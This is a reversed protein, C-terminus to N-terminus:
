AKLYNIVLTAIASNYFLKCSPNKLHEILQNNPLYGFISTWIVRPLYFIDANDYKFVHNKLNVKRLYDTPKKNLNNMHSPDAGWALLYIALETRLCPDTKYENSSCALHLPSYGETDLANPNAKGELLTKMVRPNGGECAFHLPTRRKEKERLDIPAQNQVLWRVLETHNGKVAYHLLSYSRDDVLTLPVRHRYFLTKVLEIKGSFCSSFMLSSESYKGFTRMFILNAWSLALIQPFRNNSQKASTLVRKFRDLYQVHMIEDSQSMLQRFQLTLQWINGILQPILAEVNEPNDLQFYTSCLQQVNAM